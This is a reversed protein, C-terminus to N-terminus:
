PKAIATSTDLPRIVTLGGRIQNLGYGTAKDDPYLKELTSKVNSSIQSSEGHCALCLPQTPLAKIYRYNRQGNKNIIEGKEMTLLAEGQSAREAFEQLAQTEWADPIAAPNRNKESVRRIYWGTKKSAAQAMKPAKDKCANIASVFDGKAIEQQLTEMLKLPMDSVAQRTELLLQQEEVSIPQKETITCAPVFIMSLTTILGLKLRKM